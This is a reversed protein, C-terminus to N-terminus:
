LGKPFGYANMEEDTLDKVLEATTIWDEELKQIFPDVEEHIAGSEM